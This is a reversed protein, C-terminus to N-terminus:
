CERGDEADTCVTWIVTALGPFSHVLVKEPDQKQCICSELPWDRGNVALLLSYRAVPLSHM